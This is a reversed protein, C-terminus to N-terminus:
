DMQSTAKALRWHVYYYLYATSLLGSVVFISVTALAAGMSGMQLIFFYDLVINLLGSVVAVVTNWQLQHLMVLINGSPIRFSATFFYGLSLLRFIPIAEMYKPFVIRFLLPAALILLLSLVLNMAMMGLYLRPLYKELWAQDKRNKAVHPYIYTVIGSPIFSLAFPLLTATHYSALIEPDKLIGGILWGDIIYLLSSISNNVLSILSVGYFSKKEARSLQYPAEELRPRTSLDSRFHVYFFLGVLAYALYRLGVLITLSGTMAGALLMLSSALSISFSLYAFEQNKLGIRFKVLFADVLYMALPLGSMAFLVSRAGPIPFDFFLSFVVLGLLLLLNVGLGQRLGLRYYARQREVHDLNESGMQLIGSSFGLGSLLLATSLINNAYSYTGYAEKSLLNVVLLGSAMAVVKNLVESSFIHAFGTRYLKKLFDKM